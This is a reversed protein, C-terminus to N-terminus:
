ARDTSVRKGSGDGELAKSSSAVNSEQRGSRAFASRWISDTCSHPSPRMPDADYHATSITIVAPSPLIM